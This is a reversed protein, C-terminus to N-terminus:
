NNNSENKVSVIAQRINDVFEELTETTSEAAAASFHGGGGVTEAIIQVNTNNIGRASMKFRDKGVVKAVVFTAKRGQINLMFDAAMSVVDLDIEEATYALLFGPKVEEVNRTIKNIINFIEESIKLTEISKASQAGWRTLISAANFTKMTTSKKFQNTDMYIGNLLMQASFPSIIRNEGDSNLAIVETVIESSSSATTEIYDNGKSLFEPKGSVVRHHDFIFIKKPDATNFANPNEIRTAEATDVIIIMTNKNTYKSATSPKIFIKKDIYQSNTELFHTTTSDFTVNQIYMKKELNFKTKAYNILFQGLGFASGVADLDAYKHGYLIINEVEPNELVALMKKSVFNLESRSSNSSIESNSGYVVPRSGYKITTIQNGGRTKSYIIADKAIQNLKSIENTGHVFGVSLTVEQKAEYSSNNLNVVMENFMSFNKAKLKAFTEYSTVVWFKGEIYQRYSFNYNKSLEDLLNIVSTKVKFFDEEGLTSLLLQFNDIEIEGIVVKDKEYSKLLNDYLTIDRISIANKDRYKKIAYTYGDESFTSGDGVLNEENAKVKNKLVDDINKGIWKKSFRKEIFSSVWIIKGNTTHLVLGLNNEEVVDNIYEYLSSQIKSSKHLFVWLLWCLSITAVILWFVFFGFLLFKSILNIQYLVIFIVAFLILYFVNISFYILIKAKKSM